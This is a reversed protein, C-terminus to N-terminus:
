EIGFLAAAHGRCLAARKDAGIDAAALQLATAEPVQIPFCSGYALRNALSGRSLSAIAAIPGNTFWLDLMVKDTKHGANLHESVSDWERARLGSLIVPMDEGALHLMEAIEHFPVPMVPFRPHVLREDELRACIHLPLERGRLRAVLEAAQPSTLSYGHYGPVLRIGKAGEKVAWELEPEWGPEAPNLIAFPLLREDRAAERFLEENGSRTDFGFISAIHSVCMASLGLRDAMATLDEATARIQLRTPWQGMFATLDIAREKQFPELMLMAPHVSEESVATQVKGFTSEANSAM